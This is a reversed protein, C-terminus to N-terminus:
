QPITLKTEAVVSYANAATDIRGACSRIPRRRSSLLAARAPSPAGVRAQRHGNGTGAEV